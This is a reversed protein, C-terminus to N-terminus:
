RQVFSKQVRYQVTSKRVCMQVCARVCVHVCLLGRMCVCACVLVSVCFFVSLCMCACVSFVHLGVGPFSTLIGGM